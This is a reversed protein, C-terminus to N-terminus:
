QSTVYQFVPGATQQSDKRIPTSMLTQAQVRLQYMLGMATNVTEPSGNFSLHLANLLCSYGYSFTRSLMEVQSGPPYDSPSPNDIMPYVGSEDFPIPAGGYSFGGKTRIIKRGYYIEGFRYYHAPENPSEFPDTHTGEGQTVIIDIAQCASDANVIPFLLASGFWSLNQREAGVVFIVDGLARIKNQLAAYFEGITGFEPAAAAALHSVPIPDEPEEIQMFVSEVLPRSFAKIPVIFGGGIGMPLPCPYCPIFEPKNLQPSGGTAVLINGAITLHLMEEIVVSRILAAIEPNTGPMLSYLATLYSPITAHELKIAQQLIPHLDEKHDCANIAHIFKRDIKIM